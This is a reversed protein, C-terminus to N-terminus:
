RGEDEGLLELQQRAQVLNPDLRLAKRFHSVAENTKGLPLLAMGLNKLALANNPAVRLVEKYQEV